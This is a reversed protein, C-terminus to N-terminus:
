KVDAWTDLATKRCCCWSRRPAACHPDRLLGTHGAGDMVLGVLPAQPRRSAITDALIPLTDLAAPHPSVLMTSSSWRAILRRQVDM